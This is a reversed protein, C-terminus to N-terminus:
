SMETVIKQAMIQGYAHNAHTVDAAWFERRLYGSVDMTEPAVTIFQAGSRKAADEMMEQLLYWLKLRVPAPTIKIEDLSQGFKNALDVFYPEAKLFSRLEDTGEKPPPTGVVAVRAPSAKKLMALVNALEKVSPRFKERVMGQPVIQFTSIVQNVYRSVFDFPLNAQFLFFSNHENGRWMIAIRAGEALKALKDWYEKGRPWAGYLANVNPFLPAQQLFPESSPVDGVLALMHSDGAVIIPSPSTTEMRAEPLGAPETM